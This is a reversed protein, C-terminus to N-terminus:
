LKKDLEFIYKGYYKKKVIIKGISMEGYFGYNDIFYKRLKFDIEKLLMVEKDIKFLFFDYDYEGIYDVKIVRVEVILDVVKDNVSMIGGIFYKVGEFRKDENVYFINFNCYVGM